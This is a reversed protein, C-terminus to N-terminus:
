LAGRERLLSGMRASIAAAARTTEVVARAWDKGDLGIRM